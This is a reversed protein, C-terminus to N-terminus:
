PWTWPKRRSIAAPPHCIGCVLRGAENLWDLGRHQAYRCLGAPVPHASDTGSAILIKDHPSPVKPELTLVEVSPNVAGELSGEARIADITPLVENDEPLPDGRVLRMPKGRTGDALNILYGREIATKARRSAAAKDIGLATALQRLTVEMSAGEPVAAVTARITPSVTAEVGDAILDYVLERVVAYDEVSALIRGQTDRERSAQHLLAHARILNLLAKADRRLRVAVPPIARVLAKAYPITVPQPDAAIWRQLEHWPTFDIQPRQQQALSDLIARTQETSDKVPISLLRTENEPHLRVATTTVILGTPGEREILRSRMGDPTAEVTEYRLRGESLLSRMLYSALEGELGAAEYVVLMRHELEEDSYALARESMATLVYCAEAPLFALAREVTFSKGASSPGKVAVSVPQDLLRSTAALYVLKATRLEGVLGARSLDEALRDLISPCRAIAECKPFGASRDRERETRAHEAWPVATALMEQLRDAFRAPDALFTEAIDKFDDLFVLRVRDRIRSKGLWHLASDGGSDPEIFVYITDIGDLSPADRTENWSNAGPLGLASVGAYWLVHCDSEGEVLAAWGAEHGRDLRDLGYLRPKSGSKWRFRNDAGDRKKELALRYRVAVEAGNTDFYPIRVASPGGGPRRTDQLGLEMLFEAPLGKARAYAEVTCGRDAEDSDQEVVRSSRAGFHQDTSPQRPPTDNMPRVRELFGRRNLLEMAERPTRGCAIAADYPGGKSGCGHCCWVGTETSVSCSPNRDGHVHAAPNAFCKVAANRGGRLTVGLDAYLGRADRTVPSLM